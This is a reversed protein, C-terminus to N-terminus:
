RQSERLANLQGLFMTFDSDNTYEEFRGKGGNGNLVLAYRGFVRATKHYQANWAERYAALQYGISYGALLTRKIDVLIVRRGHRQRISGILDFRGAYRYRPHYVPTESAILKFDTDAKFQNWSDFYGQMWQPVTGLDSKCDLEVMKHIAIGQQRARELVEPDIMALKAANLSSLITTVGPVVAGAMRYTHTSEEFELM